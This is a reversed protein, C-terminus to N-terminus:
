EMVMNIASLILFINVVTVIVGNKLFHGLLVLYALLKLMMKLEWEKEQSMSGDEV